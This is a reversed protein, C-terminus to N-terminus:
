TVFNRKDNYSVKQEKDLLIKGYGFIGTIAFRRTFFNNYFKKLETGDKRTLEDWRYKEPISKETETEKAM